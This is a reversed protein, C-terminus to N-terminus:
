AAKKKEEVGVTIKKPLAVGKAPMSIELIGNSFGAHVNGTDVGEPLTLTREFSGYSVECFYKEAEKEEKRIKREGKIILQNGIISIDVDKPDIGPLDARVLFKEGEMYCEAVPYWEGRSLGPILGGFTRRFLEDVDRHFTSLEGFPDWKRLGFM